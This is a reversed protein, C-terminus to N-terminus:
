AGPAYRKSAYSEIEIEPYWFYRTLPTIKQGTVEAFADVAAQDKFHVTLTRFATKDEHQFEPMGQWESYPDNAAATPTFPNALDNLLRDLDDGDFGTGALAEDTGALEVLLAALANPDDNGLRATRNDALLIRLAREDDIDVWTVPLRDYGLTQAAQYRHNGALIKGTSRQVVLSGFFGNAKISEIVAGLDGQNVNREHTKLRGIEVMEFDHEDNLHKPM